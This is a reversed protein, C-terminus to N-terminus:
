REWGEGVDDNLSLRAGGSWPGVGSLRSERWRGVPSQREGGGDEVDDGSVLAWTTVGRRRWSRRGGGAVGDRRRLIADWGREERRKQWDLLGGAPRQEVIPSCTSRRRVQWRGKGKRERERGQAVDERCVERRV